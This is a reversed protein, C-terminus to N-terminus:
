LSLVIARFKVTASTWGAANPSTYQIQGASTITFVYGTEEGSTSQTISWGGAAIQTGQIKFTQKLPTTAVVSVQVVAEFSGISANAFALGTVNAASSVNNAATFSTPVIDGPVSGSSVATVLGKANVTVTANTFSGVNSNVTALTASASASGSAPGATIDGTLQNIANVTVVGTQGNVSQVINSQVAREWITGNYLVWDGSNFTINGAGFNVTGGTSVIYFWGSTGTGNVLTPTNTSADWTGLYEILTPPLQSLPVHGGSDLSAVGNVAGVESLPVKANLQTQIASTVGSVYALETSTTVSSIVNKSADTTLATSAQTATLNTAGNIAVSGTFTKNGGFSQTTTSVGGPHTADAPQLTLNNAGDASVGNANPTSGFTQPSIPLIEDFTGTFINFTYAM